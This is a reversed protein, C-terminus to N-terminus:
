KVEQGQVTFMRGDRILFLQGNIIVKATRIEAATNDVATPMKRVPRLSLRNNFTGKESYISVNEYLDYTRDTLADYLEYDEAYVPMNIDITGANLLTYGLRMNDDGAPRVMQACLVGDVDIFYMQVPATATMFKSADRGAEYKVSSNSRFIVRTKDTYSGATANIDIRSNEAVQPARRPTGGVGGPVPDPSNNMGGNDSNSFTLQGAGATQIFFAQLPQLKFDASTILMNDYGTGNWITATPEDTGSVTIGDAGMEANIPNGVFNWNANQEFQAPYENLAVSVTSNNIYEPYVNLRLRGAKSSYVIYGQLANFAEATEWGSRAQARVAGNYTGWAVDSLEDTVFMDRSWGDGVNTQPLCFFAWQGAEVNIDVFSAGYTATFVTDSYITVTRMASTTGDEWQLFHRDANDSAELEITSGYNAVRSTTDTDIIVIVNYDIAESTFQATYSADETAPQIEPAWGAFKYSVGELDERAPEAGRFQPLTGHELTDVQLITEDWNLFRIEYTNTAFLATFTTDSVINALRPNDEVGDSWSVFHQGELAVALLEIQQNYTVTFTSDIDNQRFTVTYEIMQDTFQAYYDQEGTVPSIQPEWGAFHYEVGDMSERVPDNGRFQPTAGYELTDIQLLEDDWNRFRIAYSNVITDFNAQYTQSGTVTPNVTPIWGAFMYTFQEDAEKIPAEPAFISDGYYFEGSTIQEGNDNVFTITYSNHSYLAALILSENVTIQRAQAEEEDSWRLFTYGPITQAQITVVDGANYVGAGVPEYGQISDEQMEIDAAYLVLDVKLEGPDGPFDQAQMNAASFIGLLAVITFLKKM